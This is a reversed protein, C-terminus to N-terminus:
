EGISLGRIVVYREHLIRKKVMDRNIAVTRGSEETTIAGSAPRREYGAAMLTEENEALFAADFAM